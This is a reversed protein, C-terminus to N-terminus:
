PSLPLATSASAIHANMSSTIPTEISALVLLSYGADDKWHDPDNANGTLRRAQKISGMIEGIKMAPSMAEWNRSAMKVEILAWAAEAMEPYSGHTKEREQLLAKMDTM